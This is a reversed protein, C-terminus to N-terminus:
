ARAILYYTARQMVFLSKRYRRDELQLGLRRFTAEWEADTRNTHPHGIFEMNFVSDIFWTLYKQVPNSYVEEIVILSAAVRAAEALIRDPDACHHLVTLLMATDFSKDAFPLRVGDYLMPALGDVLSKDSVDVATVRFHEAELSQWVVCNGPGVDLVRHDHALYRRIEPLKEQM